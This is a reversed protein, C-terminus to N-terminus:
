TKAPTLVAARSSHALTLKRRTEHTAGPDPDNIVKDTLDILMLRDDSPLDLLKMIIFIPFKQAIDVGFDCRGQRLVADILSIM